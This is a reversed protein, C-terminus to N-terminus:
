RIPFPRNILPFPMYLKNINDKNEHHWKKFNKKYTIRLTSKMGTESARSLSKLSTSIFYLIKNIDGGYISRDYILYLRNRFEADGAIRVSDYYGTKEFVDKKFMTTALCRTFVYSNNSSKTFVWLKQPNNIFYNIQFNLKDKHIYDDSDLRTIYEGTSKKIGINLSVYCGSNKNNNILILNNYKKKYSQLIKLSNDTSADNIIILEWNKYTQNIVSDIAKKLLKGSNYVPMIISVKPIM